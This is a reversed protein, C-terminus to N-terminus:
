KEKKFRKRALTATGLASAALLILYGALSNEDGMKPIGRDKKSDGNDAPEPVGSGSYVNTFVLNKSEVTARLVSNEDKVSVKIDYVTDDYTVDKQKDNVESVTYNFTGEQSYYINDFIINGDKDNKVSQLVNGDKDKLQFTFRGAALDAGKLIKSASLTVSAGETVQYKNKFTVKQESADTMHSNKLKHSVELTGDGNDAVETVINYRSSDYTVGGIGDNVERVVYNHIGPKSYEIPEFAVNGKQDNVGTSVVKGNELLEFRFEYDSIDAGDITKNIKIVDTISSSEPAEIEYTNVFTFLPGQTNEGSVTLRGKGDDKLVVKFEKESDNKIGAVDGTEKVKYTFVKTRSGDEAAKVGDLMGLTFEADGFVINGDGDNVQETKQPMPANSEGTLEFSFKGAIDDPTLSPDKDLIKSGSINLKVSDGTSYTNIFTMGGQLAKVEAKLNGAGDDTVIVTFNYSTREGTLGLKDFGDINESVTYSLTWIDKGSSSTGKVAYGDNVAKKLSDLTYEFKKDFTVKGDKDNTGTMVTEPTLDKTKVEFQFEKDKLPRGDLQKEATLVAAGDEGTKADYENSFKVTAAEAATEGTVYTYVKDATGAKSITTKVELKGDTRDKVEIAVTRAATDYQYGGAKGDTESIEYSYVKGADSVDFKLLQGVDFIATEQGEAAKPNTLKLGAESLGLKERSAQDKGKLVFEFKDAEMDKGTLVKTVTLGGSAAYDISASYRNTFTGNIVLPTVTLSGDGEDRVTVRLTATNKSYAIGPITGEEETVQYEYVGEESYEIDGFGFQVTDGGKTNAAKSKASDPMPADETVATITFNFEDTNLWDRGILTKTFLTDTSLSKAEAKYSNVFSVEPTQPTADASNYRGMVTNDTEGKANTIRKVTTVAQLSGNQDPDSVAISVEYRSKDYTIGKGKEGETESVVYVFTKGIDETTFQLSTLKKTSSPTGESAKGNSFSKDAEGIHAGNEAEIKFNFEGATLARGNLTKSVTIGGAKGYDLSANYVNKFVAKDKGSDASGNDYTVSAELTGDGKDSVSVTATATHSDYSVGGATGAEETINFKYVGVKEFTMEGFSFAEPSGDKGGSVSTEAQAATNDWGKVTLDGSEIAAETKSDGAELIFKFEEGAKMDRGTLTKEGHLLNDGTLTAAEPTYENEFVVGRESLPTSITKGDETNYYTVEVSVVPKGQEDHKVSPTFRAIYKSEDYKMGQYTYGNGANAEDPMVETLLYDYYSENYQDTFEAMGYSISDGENTVTLSGDQSTGVPMPAGETLPTVKFEFSCESLPKDGSNDTYAKSGVPGISVSGAAYNNTILAKEAPIGTPTADDGTAQIMEAETHLIGSGDDTVTVTVIYLAQSYSIGPTKIDPEIEHIHYLYVGPETFEAKGFDFPVEVGDKYSAKSQSVLETTLREPVPAGNQPKIVFTFAEGENWDRGDLVKAGVFFESTDVSAPVLARYLNTFEAQSEEGGTITGSAGTASKQSFGGPLNQEKVEYAAGQPLGYVYISQGDKLKFSDGDGLSLDGGQQKNNKDFIKAQYSGEAGTLKLVFDFEKETVTAKDFGDAVEVNKTVKLTGPLEVDIRGNNGLYVLIEEASSVSMEDWKPNIIVSATGTENKDKKDYLDTVTTLRPTGAPIYYQNNEGVKASALLQSLGSGNIDVSYVKAGTEKADYYTRQYYYDSHGELNGKTIPTKCAEDSYLYSDETFYYFSNSVAPIFSSVTNGLDAGKTFANSYFHVKGDTSNEKIYEALQSDPAKLSEIVKDKVSAGYFLRIPYAEKVTTTINNEDKTDVNFNRLPIMAAPIKVTVLDGTKTDSGHEVTIIISSLNGDPYITNGATTGEFTYTDTNGSTAKGSEPLDFKQNAFVISKFEDVEMYDGLRDTITIYGDRAANTPDGSTNEIETPYGASSVIEESIERFINGLQESDEAVKYYAATENVRDGLSQYSEAKPYNSSMANMYNNVDRTTDSPDANEFVGVTYVLTGDDKLGKATKIADNAVDASFGSGHNPEGDTFFIVVKKAGDRAGTTLVSAANNMGYDANTAGEATLGNIIDKIDQKNDEDYVTLDSNVTSGSSYTVVSIRHKKAEDAIKENEEATSDAFGNVAEKLADLKEYQRREYMQLHTTDNDDAGTKFEVREGDLEWHAKIDLIGSDYVWTLMKYAGDVYVWRGAYGAFPSADTDYTEQYIYEDGMGEGMSGSTDLVMVIDLPQGGAAMTRINSTSSLASLAVLFDSDGKKVTINSPELLVNESLVSKDTWVRGIYKTTDEAVKEWGDMSSPDTIVSKDLVGKANNGRNQGSAAYIIGASVMCTIILVILVPLMRSCMKRLSKKENM